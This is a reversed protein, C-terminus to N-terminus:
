RAAEAPTVGLTKVIERGDRTRVKVSMLQV